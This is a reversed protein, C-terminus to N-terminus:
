KATSQKRRRTGVGVVALGALLMAYTDAEPVASSIESGASVATGVIGTLSAGLSTFTLSLQRASPAESNLLISDQYYGSYSNADSLDYAFIAANGHNPIWGAQTSVSGYGTFIVTTNASLVFNSSVIVDASIRNASTTQTVYSGQANYQAQASGFPASFSVTGQHDIIEVPSPSGSNDPYGAM